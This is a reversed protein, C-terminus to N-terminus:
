PKLSLWSLSLTLGIDPTNKYNVINEIVAVGNDRKRRQWGVTIRSGCQQGIDGPRLDDFGALGGQLLCDIPGKRLRCLRRM